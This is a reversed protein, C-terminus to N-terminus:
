FEGTPHYQGPSYVKAGSKTVAPEPLATDKPAAGRLSDLAPQVIAFYSRRRDVGERVEQVLKDPNRSRFFFEPRRGSSITCAWEVAVSGDDSRFSNTSVMFETLRTGSVIREVAEHVEAHTMM